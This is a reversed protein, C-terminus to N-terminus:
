GPVVAPFCRREQRYNVETGTRQDELLLFNTVAREFSKLKQLCIRNALENKYRGMKKGVIPAGAFDFAFHLGIRALGAFTADDILRRCWESATTRDDGDELM